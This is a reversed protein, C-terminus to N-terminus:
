EVGLSRLYDIFDSWDAAIDHISDIAPDVHSMEVFGDFNGRYVRIGLEKARWVEATAGASASWGRTVVVADCIGLIRLDGQLFTDDHCLGGFGASNMHPIFPLVGDRIIARGLARARAINDWVDCERASRYPGAVYILLPKRASM